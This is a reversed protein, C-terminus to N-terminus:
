SGAGAFPVQVQAQVQVQVMHLHVTVWRHDAAHSDSSRIRCFGDCNAVTKPHLAGPMPTARLLNIKLNSLVWADGHSPDNPLPTARQLHVRFTDLFVQGHALCPEPLSDVWTLAQLREAARDLDEDSLGLAAHLHEWTDAPAAHALAPLQLLQKHLGLLVDQMRRRVADRPAAAQQLSTLRRNDVAQAESKRKRHGSCRLSM